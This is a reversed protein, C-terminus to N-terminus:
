SGVAGDKEEMQRFIRRRRREDIEEKLKLQGRTRRPNGEKKEKEREEKRIRKSRRQSIRPTVTSM